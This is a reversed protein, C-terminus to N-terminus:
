VVVLINLIFVMVFRIVVVVIIIIILNRSDAVVVVTVIIVIMVVVVVVIVIRLIAVDNINSSAVKSCGCRDGGRAYDCKENPAPPIPSLRKFIFRYGTAHCRNTDYLLIVHHSVTYYAMRCNFLITFHLM